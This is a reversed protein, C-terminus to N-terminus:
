AKNQQEKESKEINEFGLQTVQINTFKNKSFHYLLDDSSCTASTIYYAVPNLNVTYADVRYLKIGDGKQQNTKHTM